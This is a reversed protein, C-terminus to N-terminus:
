GSVVARVLSAFPYSDPQASLVGNEKGKNGIFPQLSLSFLVSRVINNNDPGLAGPGGDQGRQGNGGNSSIDFVGNIVDCYINVSFQFLLSFKLLSM